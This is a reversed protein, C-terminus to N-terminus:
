SKHNRVWEIVDSAYWRPHGNREGSKTPLRIAQPFSHHTVIYESTYKYSINLYEAIDATSWLQIDIDISPKLKTNLVAAILEDLKEIIQQESM